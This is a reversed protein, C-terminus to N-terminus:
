PFSRQMRLACVSEGVGEYEEAEAEEWDLLGEESGKQTEIKEGGSEKLDEAKAEKTIKLAADKWDGEMKINAEAQEMWRESFSDFAEIDIPDAGLTQIKFDDPLTTCQQCSSLSVNITYPLYKNCPFLTTSSHSQSQTQSQGM